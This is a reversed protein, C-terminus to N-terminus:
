NCRSLRVAEELALAAIRPVLDVMESSLEVGITGPTEISVAILVIEPNENILQLSELLDKLGLDHATLTRPYDSSFRPQLRRINGPKGEAAADILVIKRYNSMPELLHFGGTGGDLCHVGSPLPASELYRIVHVGVGEDGMLVNGIGLILIQEQLEDSLM